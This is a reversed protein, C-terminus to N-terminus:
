QRPTALPALVAEYFVKNAEIDKVNIGFHDIM